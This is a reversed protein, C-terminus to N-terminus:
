LLQSFNSVLTVDNFSLFYKKNSRSSSLCSKMKQILAVYINKNVGDQILLVVMPLSDISSDISNVVIGSFAPVLMYIKFFSFSWKSLYRWVFEKSLDFFFQSLDSKTIIFHSQPLIYSPSDILFDETVWRRLAKADDRKLNDDISPHAQMADEYESM